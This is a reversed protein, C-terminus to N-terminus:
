FWCELTSLSVQHRTLRVWSVHLRTRRYKSDKFSSCKTCTKPSKSPKQNM